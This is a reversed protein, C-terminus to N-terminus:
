DTEMSRHKGIALHIGPLETFTESSYVMMCKSYSNNDSLFCRDFEECNEVM